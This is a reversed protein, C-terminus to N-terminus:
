SKHELEYELMAKYTDEFADMFWYLQDHQKLSDLNIEQLDGDQKLVITAKAFSLAIQNKTKTDIKYYGDHDNKNDIMYMYLQKFKDEESLQSSFIKHAKLKDMKGLLERMAVDLIRGVGTYNNVIEYDERGNKNPTKKSYKPYYQRLFPQISPELEQLFDDIDIQYEFYQDPISKYLIVLSFLELLKDTSENQQYLEILIDDSSADLSKLYMQEKKLIEKIEKTVEEQVKMAMANKRVMAGYENREYNNDQYRDRIKEVQDIFDLNNSYAQEFTIEKLEDFSYTKNIHPDNIASLLILGAQYTKEYSKTKEYVQKQVQFLYDKLEFIKNLSLNLEELNNRLNFQQKLDHSNRLVHRDIKKPSNYSSIDVTNTIVFPKQIYKQDQVTIDSNISVIRGSKDLGIDLQLQIPDHDFNPANEQWIKKLHEVSVTKKSDVSIKNDKDIAQNLIVDVDEIRDIYNALWNKTHGKTNLKLKGDCEYREEYLHMCVNESVPKDNEKQDLLNEDDNINVYEDETKDNNRQEIFGYKLYHSLQDRVAMAEKTSRSSLTDDELKKEDLLKEKVMLSDLYAKNAKQYLHIKAMFETFSSTLRIKQVVGLNKDKSAIPISKINEPSSLVFPTSQLESLYQAYEKYRKQDIEKLFPVDIFSFSSESENLGFNAYFRGEKFDIVTPLHASAKINKNKYELDLDLTAAQDILSVSGTYNLQAKSLASVSLDLHRSIKQESQNLLSNLHQAQEQTFLINAQQLYQLLDKELIRLDQNEGQHTNELFRLATRGSFDYGKTQYLNQIGQTVMAKAHVDSINGKIDGKM